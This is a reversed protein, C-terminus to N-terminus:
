PTTNGLGLVKLTTNDALLADGLIRMYVKMELGTKYPIDLEELKCNRNGLASLLRQWGEDPADFRQGLGLFKLYTEESQLCNALERM